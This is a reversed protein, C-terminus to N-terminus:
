AELYDGYHPGHVIDSNLDTTQANFSLHCSGNCFATWEAPKDWFSGM